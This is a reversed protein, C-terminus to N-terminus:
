DTGITEPLVKPDIIEVIKHRAHEGRKLVVQKRSVKFSKGLFELLKDNAQHDSPPAAVKIKLAGNHLGAIETRSANPQIYLALVLLRGNERIQCWNQQM